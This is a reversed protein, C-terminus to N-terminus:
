RHNAAIFSLVEDTSVAGVTHGVAGMDHVKSDGGVSTCFTTNTAFSPTVPDSGGSAAWVHTPIGALSSALLLPSRTSYPPAGGWVSSITAQLGPGRDNVYIDQLDIAPIILAICSVLTPNRYAWNVANLAGMSAGILAVKGTKAAGKTSDVLWNYAATIATMTADRGWGTGDIDAFHVLYEAQNSLKDVLPLYGITSDVSDLAVSSAGHCYIIGPFTGAAACKRPKWLVDEEGALYRGKGSDHGSM